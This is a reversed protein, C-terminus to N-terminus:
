SGSKAMQKIFEEEGERDNRECLARVYDHTYPYPPPPRDDDPDKFMKCYMNWEEAAEDIFQELPHAELMKARNLPGYIAGLEALGRVVGGSLLMGIMSSQRTDWVFAPQGKEPDAKKRPLMQSDLVPVVDKPYNVFWSHFEVIQILGPSLSTGGFKGADVGPSETFIWRRWDGNAFFGVMEKTGMLKDVREDARFGLVKIFHDAYLRDGSEMVIEKATLRKITDVVLEVKKCYQALFYVDGIGFRAKQRLTAITREKNAVVCYFNWPDDPILSYMPKMADLCMAGPPAYLSQNIFWSLMRPMALNKRRCILWVKSAGHELCTRVNEVGFAGMGMIAPIQGRVKTYDFEEFMGYGIGGEFDEEGKYDLRWPASLAGPYCAIASFQCQTEEGNDRFARRTLVEFHQKGPAYTPKDRENVIVDIKAVETNLQVHPMIGFEDAVEKFHVLLEDRTPWTKMSSRPLKYDQGYQLHYAGLETQLKSTRNANEVWAVGGVKGLRDIVSFSTIGERLYSLAQRLGMHGAGIILIPHPYQAKARTWSSIGKVTCSRVEEVDLLKRYSSSQKVVFSLSDAEIGLREGILYKVEYVKTTVEVPLTLREGNGFVTLTVERQSHSKTGFWPVTDVSTREVAM